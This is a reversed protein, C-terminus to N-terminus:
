RSVLRSGLRISALDTWCNQEDERVFTLGDLLIQRNATYGAWRQRATELARHALQEGSMKAITLHPIYPLEEDFQLTGTSLKGHLETMIEAGAEVRIFVTATVPLFTEVSGLAIQFPEHEGCLRELTELAAEESGSLPRPPLITLHAAMLPLDPHLERRLQEVFEGAPSKVYAVLAYRPSQM